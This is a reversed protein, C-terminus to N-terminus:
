RLLKTSGSYNYPLAFNKFGPFDLGIDFNGACSYSVDSGRQLVDAISSVVALGSLSGSFSVVQKQKPNIRLGKPTSGAVWTSNNVTLNYSIDNVLMVFGNKNEVEWSVEYDLKPPLLTTKANIGKFTLSPFQLLPITGKPELCVVREGLVPLDFKLKLPIRYDVETSGVLSKFTSFVEAYKMSVPVEVVTTGRSKIASDNKITGEIFHNANILLEWGLEPFPITFSNPNNVNVKCLLDIGVFSVNTIDVSKLSVKPERVMGKLTQCTTLTFCAALAAAVFVSCFIM